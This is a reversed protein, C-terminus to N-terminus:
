DLWFLSYRICEKIFLIKSGNVLFGMPSSYRKHRGLVDGTTITVRLQISLSLCRSGERDKTVQIGKRSLNCRSLCARRLLICCCFSYRALFLQTVWLQPLHPVRSVFLGCILWWRLPRPSFCASGSGQGLVAEPALPGGAARCCAESAQGGPWRESPVRRGEAPALLPARNWQPKRRSGLEEDPGEGM